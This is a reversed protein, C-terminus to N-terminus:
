SRNNPAMIHKLHLIELELTMVQFNPVKYNVRIISKVRDDVLPLTIM